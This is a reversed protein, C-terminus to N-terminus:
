KKIVEVAPIEKATVTGTYEIQLIDGEAYESFDIDDSVFTFFDGEASELVINEGEEGVQAVEGILASIQAEDSDYSDEMVIKVAMADDDLDGIYTVMANQDATIGDAAVIYANATTLTYEEGEVEITITDEGVAVVKGEETPDTNQAIVSDLVEVTMAPIPDDTTEAPYCIEIWDGEAFPYEQTLEANSIDYAKETSDEDNKVTLINGDIATILGSMYEEEIGEEETEVAETETEAAVTTEAATTAATDAKKSCATVGVASVALTLIATVLVKKKM